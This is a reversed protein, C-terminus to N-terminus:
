KSCERGSARKYSGSCYFEVHMSSKPEGAPQEKISNQHCGEVATAALAFFAAGILTTQEVHSSYVVRKSKREM